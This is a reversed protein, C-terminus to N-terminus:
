KIVGLKLPRALHRRAIIPVEYFGESISREEFSEIGYKSKSGCKRCRFGANKGISEMKKGCKRCVPPLVIKVTSIKKVQIKEVNIYGPRTIGGYVKVLDGKRLSSIVSRFQKTPEMAVAVIIGSKDEVPFEVIGGRLHVPNDNLYGEIISSQYIKSDSIKRKVLHDDTGQNTMYIIYSRYPESKVNIRHKALLEPDTGRLGFLVPTKTSPRIANYRNEFDYSDFMDSYNRELYIASEDDVYHEGNWRTPELYAILEYTITEAPWSMAANAGVIGVNGNITSIKGSIRGLVSKFDVFERVADWYYQPNPREDSVILAPNTNKERPSFKEIVSMIDIDIKEPSYKEYSYVPEDDVMGVIRKSGYGRGLLMSIAGNGRTKIPINPNLRVLKPFGILDLSTRKLIEVTLYTTCMERSSDTDDIGIIPM